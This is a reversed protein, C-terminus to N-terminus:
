PNDPTTVTPESTTCQDVICSRYEMVSETNPCNLRVSSATSYAGFTMTPVAAMATPELACMPNAVKLENVTRPPSTGARGTSAATGVGGNPGAQTPSIIM